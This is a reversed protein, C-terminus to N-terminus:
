RPRLRARVLRGVRAVGAAHGRGALRERHQWGAHWPEPDPGGRDDRGGRGAGPLHERCLASRRIETYTTLAGLTLAVGDTAIGRLEDLRWLDVTRDPPEGLEATLSVMLDTGGAIPRAAPSEAMVAYAEGLSAPSVVPPEIPM